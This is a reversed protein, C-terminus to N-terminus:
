ETISFEIRRNKIKNEQTDNPAIPKTQGYGVYTLRGADVGARVLYDAIAKARSTSLVQNKEAIGDASTHGEILVKATPCGKTAGAVRDLTASSEPLINASSVQFLIPGSAAEKLIADRCVQLASAAVPASVAAATAAAVAVQKARAAAADADAKLKAEVDARARAAAAADAKLKADTDLRANAAADADAKLKAEADARLKAAAAADAQQKAELDAKLKAEAALKVKAAAAAAAADATQKLLAAEQRAKEALQMQRTKEQNGM